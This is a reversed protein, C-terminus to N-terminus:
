KLAKHMVQPNCDNGFQPCSLCNSIESAKERAIVEWGLKLYFEPVKAVLWAERGGMKIIEAEMIGMLQMGIHEKRYDKDVALDSIVFEGTREELAAGGILKNSTLDKCEWCKLVNDPKEMGPKVELGNEYFLYTLKKYDNSETIEYM